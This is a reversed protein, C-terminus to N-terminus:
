HLSQEDVGSQDAVEEDGMEDFGRVFLQEISDIAVDADDGEVHLVLETGCAAGLTLLSLISKCDVSEGGRSILINSTFQNAMRVLMDAPRAHLGQPNRVVVNRSLAKSM